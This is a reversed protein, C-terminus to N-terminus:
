GNLRWAEKTEEDHLGENSLFADHQLKSLALASVQHGHRTRTLHATSLFSDATGSSAVGAPHTCNDM